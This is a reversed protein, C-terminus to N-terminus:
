LAGIMGEHIVGAKAIIAFSRFFRPGTGDLEEVSIQLTLRGLAARRDPLAAVKKGQM